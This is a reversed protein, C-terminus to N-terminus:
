KIDAPTEVVFSVAGMGGGGGEVQAVALKAKPPPPPACPAPRGGGRGPGGGGYGGVSLVESLVESIGDDLSSDGDEECEGVSGFSSRRSSAASKKRMGKQNEYM